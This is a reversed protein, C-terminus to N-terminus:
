LIEHNGAIIGGLLGGLISAILAGLIGGVTVLLNIGQFLNMLDRGSVIGILIWILVVIVTVLVGAMIGRKKGRVILGSMLGVFLWSLFVPTLITYVSLATNGFILSFLDYNFSYELYITFWRLPEDTLINYLEQIPQFQTFLSVSFFSLIVGIIIGVILRAM